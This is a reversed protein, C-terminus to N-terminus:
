IPPRGEYHLKPSLGWSFNNMQDCCKPEFLWSVCVLALLALQFLLSARFIRRFYSVSSPGSGPDGSDNSATPAIPAKPPHEEQPPRVGDASTVCCAASRVVLARCRLQLAKLEEEALEIRERMALRDRSDPALGLELQRVLRRIAALRRQREGIEQESGEDSIGSDSFSGEQHLHSYTQHVSESLLKAVERVSTATQDSFNGNTLSSDLLHITKKDEQLDKQLQELRFELTKWAPLISEIQCLKDAVCTRANDYLEYLETIEIKLTSSLEELNQNDLTYRHVLANLAALKMGQSTIREQVSNCADIENHIDAVPYLNKSAENKGPMSILELLSKADLIQRRIRRYEFMAISRSKVIRWGNLLDTTALKDGVSMKYEDSSKILHDLINVHRDCTSILEEIENTVLFNNIGAKIQESIEEANKLQEKSENIIQRLSEEDENSDEENSAVRSKRKMRPSIDSLASWDSQSDIFNRYDEGFNLLRRAADSDHSESYPESLYNEQYNDWAQESLSSSQEEANKLSIKGPSDDRSDVGHLYRTKEGYKFNVTSTNNDEESDAGSTTSTDCYVGQISIHGTVLDNDATRDNNTLHSSYGPFSGSKILHTRITEAAPNYLLHTDSKGFATKKKLRSKKKRIPSSKETILPSVEEVTSSTSNNSNVNVNNSSATPFYNSFRDSGKPSLSMQHLASESISFNNMVTTSTIDDFQTISGLWQHSGSNSILEDFSTNQSMSYQEERLTASSTDVDESTQSEKEDDEGSADCSDDPKELSLWKNVRSIKHLQKRDASVLEEVKQVLIKIKEEPVSKPRPGRAPKNLKPRSHAVNENTEEVGASASNDLVNNRSNVTDLAFQQTAEDMSTNTDHNFYFTALNPAKKESITYQSTDQPINCNDIVDSDIKKQETSDIVGSRTM